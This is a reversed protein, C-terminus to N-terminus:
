RINAVIIGVILLAVINLIKIMPNLAPGATDKFPDGVLDGTVAAEYAPSKKGGLNGEEIYKKANDWAAGSTTMAIALFIGTIIAGVLSGGVLLIGATGGIAWGVLALVIPALVPILAPVIMERLAARTVIDVVAAYDPLSKFGLLGKIERFQRRTEEVVKSGVRGVAELARGGFIFPLLGGIFLGVLLYPNDLKFEVKQGADFVEQVYAAFLVIAALGASGIAYAKTVAKTTNGVADLADTAQRVEDPLKAMAAIGGANDAIPGFADIAVIIGALSLMAMAALAVGFLGALFYATLIGAAILITTLATSKFAIGLGAIINTAHGTVSAQAIQRVPQYKKSTYYETIIVLGATVVLGVLSALYLDLANYIGNGSMLMSIIPYFAVAALIGSLIIGRYMSSMIAKEKKTYVILTGIISAAIAAAGMVLPLLLVGQFHPFVLSGLLIVAIATVAYTEFLDAAMGACDGVNDGVNDAITAPNRPDDEPIGKEIKGVLDAGIDAGKTYIGGGLRAFVSILSGGFGFGILARVDQTWHYFFAVGLLALGVVLMGTVTGGRFAVLFARGLGSKAAEATRVNARVAVIVGIYGALASLLAGLVFGVATQWGLGYLLILFIVVAVGAWTATQRNLYASAGQRIAKAIEKMKASGAPRRLVWWILIGGYIIALAGAGYVILMSSLFQSM